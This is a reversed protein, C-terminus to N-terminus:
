KNRPHSNKDNKLRNNLSGKNKLFLKPYFKACGMPCNKFFFTVIKLTKPQLIEGLALHVLPTDCKRRAM